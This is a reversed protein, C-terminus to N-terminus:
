EAQRWRRLLRPLLSRGQRELWPGLPEGLDRRRLIPAASGPRVPCASESM